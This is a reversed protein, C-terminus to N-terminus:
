CWSARLCEITESLFLGVLVATPMKHKPAILSVLCGIPIYLLINILNDGYLIIPDKVKYGWFWETQILLRGTSKRTLFTVFFLAVIYIALIAKSVGKM